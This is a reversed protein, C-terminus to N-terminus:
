RDHSLTRRRGVAHVPPRSMRARLPVSASPRGCSSRGQRARGRRREKPRDRAASASAVGGAQSSVGFAREARGASRPGRRNGWWQRSTSRAIARSPRARCCSDASNSRRHDRTRAAAAHTRTAGDGCWMRHTLLLAAVIRGAAFRIAGIEHASSVRACRSPLPVRDGPVNHRQGRARRAFGPRARGQKSVCSSRVAWISSGYRSPQASAM